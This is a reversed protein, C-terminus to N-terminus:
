DARSGAAAVHTTPPAGVGGWRRQVPEPKAAGGPALISPMRILTSRLVEAIVAPPECSAATRTTCPPTMPATSWDVVLVYVSSSTLSACPAVVGSQPKVHAYVSMLAPFKPAATAAWFFLGAWVCVSLMLLTPM